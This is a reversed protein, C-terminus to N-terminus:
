QLINMQYRIDFHLILSIDIVQLKLLSKSHRDLLSEKLQAKEMDHKKLMEQNESQARNSGSSLTLFVIIM